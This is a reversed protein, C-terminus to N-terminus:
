KLRRQDLAANRTARIEYIEVPTDLNRDVLDMYYRRDRGNMKLGFTISKLPGPWPQLGACEEIYRWEKEYSWTSSKTSIVSRFLDSDFPIQSKWRQNGNADITHKSRQIFGNEVNPRPDNLYSVPITKESKLLTEEDCSFGLVLGNYQDAYHSWMLENKPDESMSFIGVSAVAREFKKLLKHPQSLTVRHRSSMQRVSEYQKSHSKMRVSQVWHSTEEPTLSYIQPQSLMGLIAGEEMRRIIERKVTSDVHGTRCELPDNLNKPLSLWVKRDEIIKATWETSDRYKYLITPRM